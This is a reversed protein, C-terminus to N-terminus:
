GAWGVGVDGEDIEIRDRAAADAIAEALARAAEITMRRVHVTAGPALQALRDHDFRPVVGVVPYGGTVPGDALIVIPEGSPPVQISGVPVGVSAVREMSPVIRGGTLRLGHRDSAAAVTWSTSVLAALGAAGIWGLRTPTAIVRIDVPTGADVLPPTHGQVVSRLPREPRGAARLVDGSRLTRGDVGGFGARRDTSASGLVRPVVFGGEIALYARAGGAGASPGAFKLTTGGSLRYSAGPRLRQHEATAGLDAGALAIHAASVVHLSPGVLTMEVVPEDDGNGVLRNAVRAAGRDLAGGVPVGYRGFGPRGRADQITSALGPEVVELEVATV